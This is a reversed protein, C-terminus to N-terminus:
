KQNTRNYAQTVLTQWERYKNTELEKVFENWHADNMPNKNEKMIFELVYKETLDKIALRLTAEKKEETPTYVIKYPPPSVLKDLQPTIIRNYLDDQVSLGKQVAPGRGEPGMGFVIWDPYRITTIWFGERQLKINDVNRDNGIKPDQYDKSFKYYGNEITYTKGEEGLNLWRNGKETAFYDLMEAIKAHQEDTAKDTAAAGWSFWPQELLYVAKKNKDAKIFYPSMAWNNSNLGAFIGPDTAWGFMFAAENKSISNTYQKDTWTPFDVPLLGNMYLKKAYAIANKFDPNDISFTLKSTNPDVWVLSSTNFAIYIANIVEFPGTKNPIVLNPIKEKKIKMLADFLEDTTQPPQLGVSDFVDKKYVWSQASKRFNKVPVWYNQDQYSTTSIMSAWENDTFLKRYNPMKDFYKGWPRLVKEKQFIKVQYADWFMPFFEPYSNTAFLIEIKEFNNPPIQVYKLNVNFKELIGQQFTNPQQYEYDALGNLMTITIPKPKSLTSAEATSTTDQQEKSTTKSCAALLALLMAILCLSAIIRKINKM